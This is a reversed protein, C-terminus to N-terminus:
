KIHYIIKPLYLLNYIIFIVIIVINENIWKNLLQEYSKKVNGTIKEYIIVCVGYSKEGNM